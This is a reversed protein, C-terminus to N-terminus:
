LADGNKLANWRDRSLAMFIDQADEEYDPLPERGIEQFGLKEYVHKARPNFSFVDLELTELGLERFAFDVTEAAAWSGLSRCFRSRDFIVIRFNARRADWDLENLVSEGIFRGDPAVILFDFRDPDSVARDYHQVVAERPPVQETGTLRAVEPDLKRLCEAYYKEGQGAPFPILTYGNNERYLAKKEMPISDERAIDGKRDNRVLPGAESAIGM